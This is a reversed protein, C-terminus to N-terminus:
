KKQPWPCFEYLTCADCHPARATCTARGHRNVLMSFEYQDAQPIETALQLEIKTPDAHETLGLRNTVRKFHTDVIIAPNNFVAGLVVNATKRGVGPLQLLDEMTDPISGAHKDRVIAAAGRINKAKSRFFGVSHVITELDAIPAEAMSAADPYRSFLLPTAGNVQEDTTQASLIVAILLQFPSDFLLFPGSSDLTTSLNSLIQQIRNAAVGRM